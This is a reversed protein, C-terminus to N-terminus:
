HRSSISLRGMDLKIKFRSLFDFVQCENETEQTMAKRIFDLGNKIDYDTQMTMM